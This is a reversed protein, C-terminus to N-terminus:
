SPRGLTVPVTSTLLGRGTCPDTPDPPLQAGGLGGRLIPPQLHQSFVEPRLLQLPVALQRCLCLHSPAGSHM